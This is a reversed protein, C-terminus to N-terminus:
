LPLNKVYNALSVPMLQFSDIMLIQQIMLSAYCEMISKNNMHKDIPQIILYSDYGRLNHFVLLIKIQTYTYSILILNKILLVEIFM